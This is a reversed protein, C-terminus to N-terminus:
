SHNLLLGASRRIYETSENDLSERREVERRRRLLSLVWARAHVSLLAEACDFMLGRPHERARPKSYIYLAPPTAKDAFQISHSDARKQPPLYVRLSAFTSHANHRPHTYIYIYTATVCLSSTVPARAKNATNLHRNNKSTQPAALPM